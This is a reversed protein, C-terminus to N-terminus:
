IAIPPASTRPITIFKLVVKARKTKSKLNAVVFSLTADSTTYLLAPKSAFAISWQSARPAKANAALTVETEASAQGIQATLLVDEGISFASLRAPAILAQVPNIGAQLHVQEKWVRQSILGDESRVTLTLAESCDVPSTVLVTIPNAVQVSLYEPQQLGLDLLAAPDKAWVGLGALSVLALIAFLRKSM